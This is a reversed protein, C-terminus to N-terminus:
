SCAYNERRKIKECNQTNGGSQKSHSLEPLVEGADYVTELLWVSGKYKAQWTEDCQVLPCFSAILM